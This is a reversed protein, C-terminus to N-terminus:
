LFKLLTKDYFPQTYLMHGATNTVEVRVYSENGSLPYVADEDTIQEYLINGNKGIFVYHNKDQFGHLGAAKVIIKDNLLISKQLILGTSAYFNGNKFANTVATANNPSNVMNWARAINWWNHFDDNGFCWCLKGNSLALDFAEPANSRGQDSRIRGNDISGNVIEIGTYGRLTLIREKSFSWEKVWNPHCLVTFGGDTTTVDITEQCRDGEPGIRDTGICLMHVTRTYEYGHLLTIDTRQYPVDTILKEYEHNSICVAGYECKIYADLVTDIDIKGCPGYTGAHTHLNTRVLTEKGTIHCPNILM